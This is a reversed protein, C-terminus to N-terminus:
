DDRIKFKADKDSVDEEDNGRQCPDIRPKAIVFTYTITQMAMDASEAAEKGIVAHSADVRDKAVRVLLRELLGGEDNGVM